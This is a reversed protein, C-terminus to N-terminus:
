FILTLQESMDWESKDDCSKKSSRKKYKKIGTHAYSLMEKIGRAIMGLMVVLDERLSQSHEIIKITLLRTDITDALKALLGLFMMFITNLNNLSKLSRVRMDEYHYEQKEARHVEEIKWRNLYARVIARADHANKVEKNTILMMPEDEKLGYVFVLRYEEHKGDTLNARTYSITLNKRENQFTANFVIKGKRNKAQELVNKSKGKFLMNRNGKLRIIFDIGKEDLYRFLKKDDYGRDFIGLFKRDVIKSVKDIAEYTCTNMSKFDASKTSVINSYIPVPQKKNKSVVVANVVPYGPKKEKKPDSADVVIDLDEFKKGYIKVIDTNDFIVQPYEPLMSQVYKKYQEEINKFNKIPEQLHLCLREITNDLKANGNDKEKLTRAINSIKIDKSAALGYIMDMFFGQTPKSCNKTLYQAYKVSERKMENCDSTYNIVIFVEM